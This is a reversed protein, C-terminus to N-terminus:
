IGFYAGSCKSLQLGYAPSSTFVLLMALGHLYDLIFLSSLFIFIEGLALLRFGKINLRTDLKKFQRITTKFCKAPKYPSKGSQMQGAILLDLSFVLFMPTIVEQVM